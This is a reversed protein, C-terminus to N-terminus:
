RGISTLYSPPDDSLGRAWSSNREQELMEIQEKMREMEAVMQNRVDQEASARNGSSLAHNVMSMIQLRLRSAEEELLQQRQTLPPATDTTISAPQSSPNRPNKTRLSPPDDTNSTVTVPSPLPSLQSRTFM